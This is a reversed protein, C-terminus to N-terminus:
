PMVTKISFGAKGVADDLLGNAWDGSAKQTAAKKHWYEAIKFYQKTGWGNYYFVDLVYNLGHNVEKLM